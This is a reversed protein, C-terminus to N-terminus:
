SERERERGATGGGLARSCPSSAEGKSVDGGSGRGPAAMCAGTCGRLGEARQEAPAPTPAPLRQPAASGHRGGAAGASWRWSERRWSQGLVAEAILAPDKQM